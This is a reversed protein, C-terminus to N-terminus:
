APLCALILPQCSDKVLVVSCHFMAQVSKGNMLYADGAELYLVLKLAGPWSKARKQKKGKPVIELRRPIDGESCIPVTLIKDEKETDNAHFDIKDTQNQYLLTKM